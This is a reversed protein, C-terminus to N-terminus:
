IVEPLDRNPAWKGAAILLAEAVADTAIQNLAYHMIPMLLAEDSQWVLGIEHEGEQLGHADYLVDKLLESLKDRAVSSVDMGMKFWEDGEVQQQAKAILEDPKVMGSETVWKFFHYTQDNGFNFFQMNAVNERGKTSFVVSGGMEKRKM